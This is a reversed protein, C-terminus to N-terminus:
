VPAATFLVSDSYGEIIKIQYDSLEERIVNIADGINQPRDDTNHCDSGILKVLGSNLFKLAKKRTKKDLFFEANSQLLVDRAALEKIYSLNKGYGIFREIHALIPTIGFNKIASYIEEVEGRSWACFPMEILACKTGEICLSPLAESSGMGFYYAIEAGIYINPLPGDYSATAAKLANLSAERRSLFSEPRERDGYFHPTAIVADIGQGYGAKLMELSEGVSRSGDDMGPLIHSHVDVVNTRIYEKISNKM